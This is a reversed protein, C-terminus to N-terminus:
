APRPPAPPLPPDSFGPGTGVGSWLPKNGERILSELENAPLPAFACNGQVADCGLDRLVRIQAPKEVGEAVIKLELARGLAIIAEIIATDDKNGPIGKVFDRAIKLGDVPFQKLYNLSSFGTGFGDIVITVGLDRLGTLADITDESSEMFVSETIELSILEPDLGTEVLLDMIRRGVGRSYFQRACINIALRFRPLGADDWAKRQTIGQGLVWSDIAAFMGCEEAAPMFDAARITGRRPHDWRLLAEISEINGTELGVIPQYHLYFREEALCQRLDNEIALWQQAQLDSEPNFFQFSNRGMDKARYMAADANKLLTELEDGDQPFISIGISAASYITQGELDFPEVFLEAIKECILTIENHRRIGEVIIAFEDGGLRAVTDSKRVATQLRQAVACLLADGMAHGLGDNLNKFRDLDIFIIATEQKQRRSRELSQNARDTFLLRNPLGTLSDFHALYTVREQIKKREEIENRLERTREEVQKELDDRAERLQKEVNKRGTIDQLIGYSGIDRGHEDFVPVGREHVHCVEGDKRIIRYEIDLHTTDEFEEVAKDYRERDDPHVLKLDSEFSKSASMIEDISMGFIRAYEESCTLLRDEEFDWEWHGVHSIREMERYLDRNRRLEEAAHKQVTLARELGELEDILRAKTKGHRKRRSGNAELSLKAEQRRSEGM